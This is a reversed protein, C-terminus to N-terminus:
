GSGYVVMVIVVAALAVSVAAMAALWCWEALQKM